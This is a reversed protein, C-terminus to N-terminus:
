IQHVGQVPRQCDDPRESRRRDPTDSLGFRRRARVSQGRVRDAGAGGGHRRAVTRREQAPDDTARLASVPAIRGGGGRHLGADSRPPPPAGAGAGASPLVIFLGAGNGGGAGNKIKGFSRKIEELLRGQFKAAVGQPYRELLAHIAEITWQRKELEAIVYHFHGSRSKDGKAGNGKSVGGDRIADLLDAPLTSENGGGQPAPDPTAAGVPAKHAELLEDPSRLVGSWEALWTPEERARGRAQKASDAYNPTGAVRFPQCPNGTGSDAGTAARVADGILKGQQAATLRDHFYWYHFNRLSSAISLSPRLAVAGGKGKDNDADIVTAFVFVTDALTGRTNGRLDSRVTRPEVYVNTGAEAATVALKVMGDIDDLKFRHPIPKNAGHKCSLQLVGPKAVGAALKVVHASIIEIHRRVEAEDVAVTTM